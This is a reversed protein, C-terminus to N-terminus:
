FALVIRQTCLVYSIAEFAALIKLLALQLSINGRVFELAAGDHLDHYPIAISIQLCLPKSVQIRIFFQSSHTQKIVKQAM